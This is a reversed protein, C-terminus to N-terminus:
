NIMFLLQAMEHDSVLGYTQPLGRLGVCLIVVDEKHLSLLIYNLKM